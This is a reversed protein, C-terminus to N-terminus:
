RGGRRVRPTTTEAAGEGETTEIEDEAEKHLRRLEDDVAKVREKKGAAQYGERERELAAVRRAREEGPTIPRDPEGAPPRSSNRDRGTIPDVGEELTPGPPTEDLETDPM